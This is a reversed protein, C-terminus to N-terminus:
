IVVYRGNFAGQTLPSFDFYEYLLDRITNNQSADIGKHCQPQGDDLRGRYGLNQM